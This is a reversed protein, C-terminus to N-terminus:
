RGVSLYYIYVYTHEMNAAVSFSGYEPKPGYKLACLMEKPKTRMELCVFFNRWTGKYILECTLIKYGLDLLNIIKFLEKIFQHKLFQLM